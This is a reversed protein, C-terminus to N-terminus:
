LQGVDGLAFSFFLLFFSPHSTFTAPFSSLKRYNVFHSSFFFLFRLFFMALEFKLYIFYFLRTEPPDILM